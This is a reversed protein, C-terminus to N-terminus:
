SPGLLLQFLQNAGVPGQLNPIIAVEPSTVHGASFVRREVAEINDGLTNLFGNVVREKSSLGLHTSTIAVAPKRALM